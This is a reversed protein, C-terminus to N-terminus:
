HKLCVLSRREGAGAGACAEYPLEKEGNGQSNSFSCDVMRLERTIKHAMMLLYWTNPVAIVM